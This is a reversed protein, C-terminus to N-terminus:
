SVEITGLLSGIYGTLERLVNATREKEVGEQNKMLAQLEGVKGALVSEVNLKSQKAQMVSARHGQMGEQLKQIHERQEGAHRQLTGQDNAFMARPMSLPDDGINNALSDDFTGDRTQAIQKEVRGIALKTAVLDERLLREVEVNLAVAMASSTAEIAQGPHYVLTALERRPLVVEHGSEEGGQEEEKEEEGDGDDGRVAAVAALEGLRGSTEAEKFMDEVGQMWEDEDGGEGPVFADGDGVADSMLAALITRSHSDQAADGSTPETDGEMENDQGAPQDNSAGASVGRGVGIGGKKTVKVKVEVDEQPPPDPKSISSSDVIDGLTSDVVGDAELKAIEGKLRENEEKLEGEKKQLLTKKDQARYRSRVAALRNAEKRRFDASSGPVIGRARKPKEEPAPSQSAESLPDKDDEKSDSANIDAALSADAAAVAAAALDAASKLTPDPPSATDAFSDREGPLPLSVTTSSM